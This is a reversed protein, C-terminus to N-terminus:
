TTTVTAGRVQLVQKAYFGDTLAGAKKVTATGAGVATQSGKTYTFTNPDVVTISFTGNATTLTTIGSITLLDGTTYGHGAWTVTCLTNVGNFSSGAVTPPVGGTYSPAANTGGSLTVTKGAGFLTTGGTGDLSVLLKLINDVSTVNLACTSFTVSAGAISKLTGITGLTVTTLTSINTAAFTSGYTIM